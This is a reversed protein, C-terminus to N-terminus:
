LSNIYSHLHHFIAMINCGIYGIALPSKDSLLSLIQNLIEPLTAGYNRWLQERLQHLIRDGAIDDTGPRLLWHTRLVKFYGIENSPVVQNIEQVTNEVLKDTVFKMVLPQLSFSYENENVWKEILSRKELGVIGALIMTPDLSILFHSQLRCFSIPEQWIALWYIIDRELDSLQQFQQQLIHNLRDGIVLANENLFAAINGAFISQILPIILKIALPNGRYLKILASLGLEKGTFGQSQFLRITDITSLGQLTLCCFVKPNIDILNLKERSTIIICSQHRTQNLQQILSNYAIANEQNSLVTELGDLILLCRRQQLFQILQKIGRDIDQIVTRDLISLINDLLTLISSSNLLSKWILRDFKAQIRDALALALSTKGIGGIGVITVLKCGDTIWQELDELEQNRGYFTEIDPAENWDLFPTSPQSDPISSIDSLDVIAEWNSIGVAQCIAIFIERQIREGQWFRRLTAKSTHADQWWCATSTKTWGRRQRVKDVIILGAPSAKLSNSM